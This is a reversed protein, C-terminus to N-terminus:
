FEGKHAVVQLRQLAFRFRIEGLYHLRVPKFWTLSTLGDRRGAKTNERQVEQISESRGEEAPIPRDQASSMFRAAAEPGEVMESHSKM